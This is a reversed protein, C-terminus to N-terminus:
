KEAFNLQDARARSVGAAKASSLLMKFQDYTQGEIDKEFNAYLAGNSSVAKYTEKKGKPHAVKIGATTMDAKAGHSAMITSLMQVGKGATFNVNGGNAAGAGGRLGSNLGECSRSDGVKRLTAKKHWPQKVGTERFCSLFHATAGHVMIEATSFSEVSPSNFELTLDKHNECYARQDRLITLGYWMSEVVAVPDGFGSNQLPNIIAAGAKLHLITPKAEPIQDVVSELLDITKQDLLKLSADSKQDM